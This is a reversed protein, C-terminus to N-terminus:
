QIVLSATDTMYVGFYGLANGQINTPPNSPAAAFPGGGDAQESLGIQYKYNTKDMELMEIRISDGLDPTTGFFQAEYYQGNIFKDDGLYYFDVENENVWIRLRYYNEENPNDVSHYAVLYTEFDEGGFGFQELSYTVSDIKPKLRTTAEATVLEGNSEVNLYYIRNEKLKFDDNVYMGPEGSLESFVYSEGQSDSVTILAGSVTPFNSETYVTSTSSLKVYSVSDRDKLVAEVVLLIDAEDLPVEIVKECSLFPLVLLIFWVKKM